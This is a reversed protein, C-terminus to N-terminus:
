IHTRERAQGLLTSIFGSNVAAFYSHSAHIISGYSPSIELVRTTYDFPASKLTSNFSSDFVQNSATHLGGSRIIPVTGSFNLRKSLAIVDLAHQRAVLAVIEQADSDGSEAQAFIAPALSEDMHLNGRSIAYFFDLLSKKGSEALILHSLGSDSIGAHYNQAVKELALSILQGGGGGEGLEMGMTQLTLSGNSGATKGGTGAISVVGVGDHAGAYLAGFSDNILSIACGFNLRVVLPQFLELDEPWDIGALAFTAGGIDQSTAGASELLQDIVEQLVLSAGDIGFREWNAGGHAATALIQGEPSVVTGHTKTGGADIGLIYKSM